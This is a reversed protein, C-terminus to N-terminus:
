VLCDTLWIRARVWERQMQRLTLDYLAAIEELELGGFVRYEIIQALRQDRSQLV